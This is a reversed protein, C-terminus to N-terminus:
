KFYKWVLLYERRRGSFVSLLARGVLSISMVAAMIAAQLPRRNKWCFLVTNRRSYFYKRAWREPTPDSGIHYHVISEVPEYRIEWGAKKVRCCFDQEEAYMFYSEDILGVQRFVESRAFFCVGSIAEVSQSRSYDTPQHNRWRNVTNISTQLLTPYGMMTSQINGDPLRVTPGLLGIQPNEDMLRIVSPLFESNTLVTDNNVVLIYKAGQGLAYRIGLNNGGAYGLNKESVLLKIYPLKRSFQEVSDDESANDVLVIQEPDVGGDLFSCVCRITDKPSNWNLVIIFTM